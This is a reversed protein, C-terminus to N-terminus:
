PASRSAAQRGSDLSGAVLAAMQARAARERFGQLREALAGDPGFLEELEIM